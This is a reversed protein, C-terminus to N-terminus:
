LRANGREVRAIREVRAGRVRELVREHHLRRQHRPANSSHLRLNVGMSAWVEDDDPVEGRAALRRAVRRMNELDQEDNQIDSLLMFDSADHTGVRSPPSVPNASPPEQSTAPPSNPRYPPSRDPQRRAPDRFRVARHVADDSHLSTVRERGEETNLAEDILRFGIDVTRSSRDSPRLMSRIRIRGDPTAVEHHYMERAFAEAQALYEEDTCDVDASSVSDSGSDEGENGDEEDEHTSRRTTGGVAMGREPETITTGNSSAFSSSAPATAFSSDASPLTTDPEITSEMIEWADAPTPSRNRDGLGNVPSGARWSRSLPHMPRGLTTRSEPLFLSDGDPESTELPPTPLVSRSTSEAGQAPPDTGSASSTALDDPSAEPHYRRRMIVSNPRRSHAAAAATELITRREAETWQDGHQDGSSQIFAQADRRLRAAQAHLDDLSLRLERERQDLTYYHRSHPVPPPPPPLAISRDAHELLASIPPM